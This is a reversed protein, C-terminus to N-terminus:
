ARGAHRQATEWSAGGDATAQRCPISFWFTAGPGDNPEASLKGGHSEIISRSVSLGIGMGGSKTSYFANFLKDAGQPDFGIGVDKVVLRVCDAQERETRIVLQRPRDDVGIMSDSANKILNMIVQQLQVRDGTLLLPGGDLEARLIVRNRLLDSSVLALVERAAENLDVTETAAPKKSFLARLRTIVDAARNGDRITRRATERAGEINPPEAALMRLCTSANTIIGALPQNVEHAISATLAGMTMVRTMHALEAQTNRLEEQAQKWDHMDVVTGYWKVIHGHDDRLPRARGVCWRYTRDAAHFVRMESEYPAGNEVCRVWARTTEDVDDPHLIRRWGDGMIETASAGTYDVVRANYYDVAGDPTASWLMEPITETLQRLNIESALLAQEARKRDEIDIAVSYWKVVAGAKDRALVRHITHWRYEGDARRLRLEINLPAGAALCARWEEALRPADDPHVSSAQEEATATDLSLGTYDRWIRNVFIRSGDPRYTAVLTPITDITLQLEREAEALRAESQRLAQEAQRREDIDTHLVYWRDIRGHTDRLSLGRVQFWRYVDDFRRVRAEFDYPDGSTMARTFADIVHPLDDPHVTDSSSWRQLEELTRGCYALLQDNVVEVKGSPELIAVLGPISNLVLRLNGESDRLAEEARRREAVERELEENAQALERTRQAVRQDLESALWKQEGLLRAEQLGIAAQNAAVSLVLREIQEPFGARRSGAVIVGIEGQLGLRLPMIAFEAGDPMRVLAPWEHGALQLRSELVDGIEDPSAALGAAPDIRIATSSAAGAPDNLRMYVFDLRLMARLADITTRVIQAADGGTWIAPLALVSVLDNICRRLCKIERALDAPQEEM